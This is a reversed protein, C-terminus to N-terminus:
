PKSYQLFRHVSLLLMERLLLSLFETLPLHVRVLLRPPLAVHGSAVIAKFKNIPFLGESSNAVPQHFREDRKVRFLEVEGHGLQLSECAPLHVFGIPRDKLAMKLIARGTASCGLRECGCPWAPCRLQERGLWLRKPMADSTEPFLAAQSQRGAYGGNDKDKSRADKESPRCPTASSCTDLM